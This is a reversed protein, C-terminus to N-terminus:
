QVPENEAESRQEKSEGNRDPAPEHIRVAGIGAAVLPDLTPSNTM